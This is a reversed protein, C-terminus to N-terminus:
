YKLQLFVLKLTPSIEYIEFQNKLPCAEKLLPCKLPQPRQGKLLSAKPQEL